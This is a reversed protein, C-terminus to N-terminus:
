IKLLSVNDKVSISGGKIVKATIGGHGRMANFGGPGLNLEMQSCPVCYGTGELIVDNGLKFQRNHLALLNIGSVLINRRTSELEVKKGLLKSIVELHEKQILTVMRDSGKRSQYDGELGAEVTIEAQEVNKVIGKKESRYTISDIKGVQPLIEQLEKISLM